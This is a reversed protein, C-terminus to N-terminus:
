GHCRHRSMCFTSGNGNQDFRSIRLPLFFAHSVRSPIVFLDAPKSSAPRKTLWVLFEGIRHYTAQRAATQQAAQSAECLCSGSRRHLAADRETDHPLAPKVKHECFCSDASTCIRSLLLKLRLRSDSKLLSTPDLLAAPRERFLVPGFRISPTPPAHCFSM